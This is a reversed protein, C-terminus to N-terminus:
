QSVETVSVMVNAHQVRHDLAFRGSSGADIESVADLGAIDPARAEM